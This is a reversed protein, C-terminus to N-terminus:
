SALKGGNARNPRTNRKPLAHLARCDKRHHHAARLLTQPDAWHGIDVRHLCQTCLASNQLITMFKLGLLINKNKEFLVDNARQMELCECGKRNCEFEGRKHENIAHSCMCVKGNRKAVARTIPEEKIKPQHKSRAYCRSCMGKAIAPNTCNFKSCIVGKNKVYNTQLELTGNRKMRMHHKECYGDSFHKLNPCDDYEKAKCPVRPLRPKHEVKPKRHFGGPHKGCTCGEPCIRGGRGRGAM